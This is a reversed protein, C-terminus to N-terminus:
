EYRLRVFRLGVSTQASHSRQALGFSTCAQGRFLQIIASRIVEGMAGSRVKKGSRQM